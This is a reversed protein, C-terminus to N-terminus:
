AKEPAQLRSGAIKKCLGTPVHIWAEKENDIKSESACNHSATGCDNHGAKAIGYCKEMGEIDGMMQMPENNTPTSDQSPKTDALSTQAVGTLCLAIVASIANTIMKNSM